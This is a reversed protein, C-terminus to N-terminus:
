DHGIMRESEIQIEAYFPADARRGGPFRGRRRFVGCRLTRYGRTDGDEGLWM